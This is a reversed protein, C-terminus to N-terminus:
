SFKTANQLKPTQSLTSTAPENTHYNSSKFEINTKNLLMSSGRGQVIPKRHNIIPSLIVSNYNDDSRDRTNEQTLENSLHDYKRYNYFTLPALTVGKERNPSLPGPLKDVPNFDPTVISIKNQKRESLYRERREQRVQETKLQLTELVSM